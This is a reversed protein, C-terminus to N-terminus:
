TARLSCGSVCVSQSSLSPPSPSPSSLALYVEHTEYKYGSNVLGRTPLFSFFVNLSPMGFLLSIFHLSIYLTGMKKVHMVLTCSYHMSACVRFM